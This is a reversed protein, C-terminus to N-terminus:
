PKTCFARLEKLMKPLKEIPFHEIFHLMKPMKKPIEVHRGHKSRFYAFEAMNTELFPLKAMNTRFKVYFVLMKDLMLHANQAFKRSDRSLM